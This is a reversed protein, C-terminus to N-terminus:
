DKIELILVTNNGGFGLCNLLYCGKPLINQQNIIFNNQGISEKAWQYCPLALQGKGNFLSLLLITELVGSAGLTHGIYPKFFLLPIDASFLKSLSQQEISDNAQSGTAHTKIAVIENKNIETQKLVTTILQEVKETTTSTINEIDCVTKGGRLNFQHNRNSQPQNSLALCGIGEGLILGDSYPSFPPQYNSTLLGLSHFGHLTVSNFSEFGIIIARQMIGQRICYQAYLLANSSSTCSTAYNIITVKPWKLKIQQAIENLSFTQQYSTQKLQAQKIAMLQIEHASMTFSTSALFIVIDALDSESWQCEALTQLIQQTILTVIEHLSLRLQEFAPFYNVSQQEGDVMINILKPKKPQETITALIEDINKGQACIASFGNVYVPKM